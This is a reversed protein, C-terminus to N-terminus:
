KKLKRSIRQLLSEKELQEYKRKMQDYRMRMGVHATILNMNVTCMKINAERYLEDNEFGYKKSLEYITNMYYVENQLMKDAHEKMEDFTGFDSVVKIEKVDNITM